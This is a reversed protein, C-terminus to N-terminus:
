QKGLGTAFSVFAHGVEDLRHQVDQGKEGQGLKTGEAVRLFDLPHKSLMQGLAADSLAKSEEPLGVPQHAWGRRASLLEVEQLCELTTALCELEESVRAAMVVFRSAMKRTM